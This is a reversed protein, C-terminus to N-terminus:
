TSYCNCEMAVCQETFAFRYGYSSFSANNAIAIRSFIVLFASKSKIMSPQLDVCSVGVVISVM